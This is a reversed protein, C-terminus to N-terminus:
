GMSAQPGLTTVYAETGNNTFLAREQRRRLSEMHLVVQARTVPLTYEGPLYVDNNIKIPEKMDAPLTITVKPENALLFDSLKKLERAIETRRSLAAPNDRETALMRYEDTFEGLLRKAKKPSICQAPDATDPYFGASKPTFEQGKTAKAM